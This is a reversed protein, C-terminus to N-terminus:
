LRHDSCAMTASSSKLLNSGKIDRHLVGRAHCHRLGELIQRMFCKVQPEMFRQGSLMALGALDHEMYQQAQAGGGCDAAASNNNGGIDVTTCRHHTPVGAPSYSKSLSTIVVVPPATKEMADKPLTPAVIGGNAKANSETQFIIAHVVVADEEKATLTILQKLSQSSAKQLHAVPHPAAPPAEVIGEKSCLGGM